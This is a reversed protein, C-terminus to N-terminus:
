EAGLNLVVAGPMQHRRQSKYAGACVYVYFVCVCVCVCVCVFNLQQNKNFIYTIITHTDPEVFVLGLAEHISPLYGVV